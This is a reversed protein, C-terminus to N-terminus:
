GTQKVSMVTASLYDRRWRNPLRDGASRSACEMPSAVRSSIRAHAPQPSSLNVTWAAMPASFPSIGIVSRQSLHLYTSNVQTEDIRALVVLTTFPGTAAFGRGAM